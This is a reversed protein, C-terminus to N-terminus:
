KHKNEQCYIVSFWSFTTLKSKHWKDALIRTKCKLFYFRCSQLFTKVTSNPVTPAGDYPLLIIICHKIRLCRPFVSQKRFPIVFLQQASPTWIKRLCFFRSVLNFSPTRLSVLSFNHFATCLCKRYVQWSQRRIEKLCRPLIIHARCIECLMFRKLAVYTGPLAERLQMQASGHKWKDCECPSITERELRRNIHFSPEERGLNGVQTPKLCDPQTNTQYLEANSIDDSSFCKANWVCKTAKPVVEQLAEFCILDALLPTSTTNVEDGPYLTLWHQNRLAKNHGVNGILVYFNFLQYLPKYQNCIIESWSHKWQMSVWTTQYDQYWHWTWGFVM